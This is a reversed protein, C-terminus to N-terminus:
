AAFGLRMARLVHTRSRCADKLSGPVGHWREKGDKWYRYSWSKSPPGTIILFLGAGDAYKAPSPKANQADLPKHRGAM